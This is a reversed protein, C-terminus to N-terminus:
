WPLGLIIKYKLIYKKIYLIYISMIKLLISCTLLTSLDSGFAFITTKSPVKEHNFGGLSGQHSLHYLIWRHHPLGPSLEQALFIGRSFPIAVWGLIRAQSIGHISSGSPSCDMPDWLTLCSQTVLVRKM